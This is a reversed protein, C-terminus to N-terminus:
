QPSYLVWKTLDSLEITRKWDILRQNASGRFLLSIDKLNEIFPGDVLVDVNDLDIGMKRVQYCTYGTYMWIKIDPRAHKIDNILKVVEKRNKYYLPDGGSLTIRSIYPKSIAFLLKLKVDSTFDAGDQWKWTSQNHCGKCKHSCGQLWLVVGVGEGNAVDHETIKAYKM